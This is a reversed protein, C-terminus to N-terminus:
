ITSIPSRPVPSPVIFEHVRYEMKIINEIKEIKKQISLIDKISKIGAWIEFDFDGSTLLILFVDPIEALYKLLEKDNIKSVISARLNITGKYGLKNPDIQITAKLIQLEKMKNYRRIVTSTSIGMEKAIKSFSKRGNICLKDVIEKDIEDMKYNPTKSNNKYNKKNNSEKKFNNQHFVIKKLFELFIL